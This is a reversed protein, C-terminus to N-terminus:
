SRRRTASLSLPPAAAGRTTCHPRPTHTGTYTCSIPRTTTETLPPPSRTLPLCTTKDPRVDTHTSTAAAATTHVIHIRTNHIHTNHTHTNHTHTNHTHTHHAARARPRNTHTRYYAHAHAHTRIARKGLGGHTTTYLIGYYVYARSVCRMQRRRVTYAENTIRYIINYQILIYVRLTSKNKGYGITHTHTHFFLKENELIYHIFLTIERINVDM